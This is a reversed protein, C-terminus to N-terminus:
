RFSEARALLEELGPENPDLPKGPHIVSVQCSEAAEVLQAYTGAKLDAIYAQRNGDYAFMKPNIQTCENCTSCRVTEIYADDRSRAAEPAQAEGAEAASALASTAALAAPVAAMATAATAPVAAAQAAAAQETEWAARERALLREAHSNHVGGLEQLSHWMERSRRAKRMLREDVIVTHLRDKDDIMRVCPVREPLGRRDRLLLADVAVLDDDAPAGPLRALHAAFRPDGAVFDVFTFALDEVVRQQRADEYEFRHIPWDLEPQPNGDLSFRSAWDPGGSPDYVFAPFARSEMAAAATLYPAQGEAGGHAGSFVCFLAPGGFRMGDAVREACRGLNSAASQLVYVQSLGMAMHAIQRERLGPSPAAHAGQPAALLDDIRYLVKIPVEGGLIDMLRAQEAEGLAGGDLCVLYDPFRDLAEREFENAAYSEFLADHRAPDYRGDIELETMEITRALEVLRPLRENWAALASACSDFRYGYAENGAARAADADPLAVFPQSDLVGLLRRIRGRRAEPMPERPLARSLLSSMADFDFLEGLGGGVSAKLQAASRGADSHEFDARLIDALQQILRVLRDRLAAEKRQQVGQWVHSLLREALAPDCGVLAGDVEIAARARRASDVFSADRAPALRQVAGTWLEGLTGELGEQLMVRLEREIRLVHRQTREAASDVAIRALAADVLARLPVVPSAGDRALVLPFDHRLSALDRYGAQLAPRLRGVEGLGPARRGALHFAIRDLHTASPNM